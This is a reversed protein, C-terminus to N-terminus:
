HRWRWWRWRRPGRRPRRWVGPFPVDLLLNELFALDLPNPNFRGWQESGLVGVTGAGASDGSFCSLGAAKAALYCLAAQSLEYQAVRHQRFGRWSAFAEAQACLIRVETWGDEKADQRPLKKRAETAEKILELKSSSYGLRRTQRLLNVM